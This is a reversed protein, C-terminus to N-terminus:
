RRDFWGKMKFWSFMGLSIILMCGLVIYFGYRWKLGPMYEFNMGYIGAIFTLPMFITTIVTLTMMIMNMRYSNLSLYNDRIDSTIERSSDIMHSLKILHNYIDRFYIRQEKELNLQESHIVRYLLESMPIISRHLRSLDSRLQFIQHILSQTSSQMLKAELEDLRDEIQHIFPFYADVLKDIIKYTLFFPGKEILNANVITKEWITDIEKLKSYHFSVVFHNAIFLDIEQPKQHLTPLSHLVLFQYGKYYDLKPRQLHHLCDEIALLHFRFHEKLLSTEELSPASFDVWYWEIQPNNLQQLTVNHIFTGDKHIALTRIM